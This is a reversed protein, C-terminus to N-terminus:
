PEPRGSASSSASLAARPASRATLAPGARADREECAEGPPQGRRRLADSGRLPQGGHRTRPNPVDRSRRLRTRQASHGEVGLIAEPAAHREDRRLGALPARLGEREGGRRQRGRQARRVPGGPPHAAERGRDNGEPDVARRPRPDQRAGQGDLRRADGLRRHDGRDRRDGGEDQATRGALASLAERKPALGNYQSAGRSRRGSPRSTTASTTRAATSGAWTPKGTGAVSRTRRTGTRRAPSSCIPARRVSSETTAPEGPSSTTAEPEASSTPGASAASSM